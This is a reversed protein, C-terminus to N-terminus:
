WNDTPGDTFRRKDAVYTHGSPSSWVYIGPAVVTYQWGGEDKCRHHRRCLPHLNDETTTGGDAVRIRHDIDCRAAPKTCGPAVCETSRVRIFEAMAAPPRRSVPGHAVIEGDDHVTFMARADAAMQATTERAIDACVSGWGALDGPLDQLGILTTLPVTLEIVGTRPGPSPGDWTGNLLGVFCDARLQELTREDGASRAARACSDVREMASAVPAVPLGTATIYATGEPDTGASVRRRTASQEARRAAAEPDLRNVLRRIVRGLQETNMRPADPLVKDIIRRALKLDPVDRVAAFMRHVKPYDLLGQTMAAHVAPLRKILESAFHLRRGAATPTWTLASGLEAHIFEDMRRQRDPPDVGTADFRDPLTHAVEVLQRQLQGEFAAVIRNIARLRAVSEYRGLRAPDTALVLKVLEDGIPLGDLL